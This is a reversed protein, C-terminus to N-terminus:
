DGSIRVYGVHDAGDHGYQKLLPTEVEFGLMKAWRQGKEFDARVTLEVRGPLEALKKQVERTIMAMHRGSKMNLLMWAVYRGNWMKVVGGCAIPADDFLGTWCTGSRELAYSEEATLDYPEGGEAEVGLFDVHWRRFPVITYRHTM